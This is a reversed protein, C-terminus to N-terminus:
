DCTDSSQRSLDILNPNTKQLKSQQAQAVFSIPTLGNDHSPSVVGGDSAHHQSFVVSHLLIIGSTVLLLGTIVLLKQQLSRTHTHVFTQVFLLVGRLQSAM